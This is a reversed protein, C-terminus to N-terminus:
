SAKTRRGVFQFFDKGLARKSINYEAFGAFIKVSKTVKFVTGKTVIWSPDWHRIVGTTTSTPEGLKFSGTVPVKTTTRTRFFKITDGNAGGTNGSFTYTGDSAINLVDVRPNTLDLGYLGWGDAILMNLFQGVALRYTIVPVYAGRIIQGDPVGPFKLTRKNGNQTGAKVTLSQWPTDAEGFNGNLPLALTESYALGPADLPVIKVVKCSMGDSAMGMRVGMLKKFNALAAIANAANQYYVESWSGSRKNDTTAKIYAVCKVQAM